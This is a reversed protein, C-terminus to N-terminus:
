RLPDDGHSVGVFVGQKLAEGQRLSSLIAVEWGQARPERAATLLLVNM